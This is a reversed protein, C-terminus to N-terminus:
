WWRSVERMVKEDLAETTCLIVSVGSSRGNPCWSRWNLNYREYGSGGWSTQMCSPYGSQPKFLWDTKTTIYM